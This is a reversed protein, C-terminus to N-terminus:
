PVEGKAVRDIGDIKPKLPEISITMGPNQRQGDFLANGTDYLCFRDEFENVSILIGLHSRRSVTVRSYAEVTTM